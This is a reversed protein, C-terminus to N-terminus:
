KKKIPDARKRSVRRNSSLSYTMDAAKLAAIGADSSSFNVNAKKRAIKGKEKKEYVAQAKKKAAKGSEKELYSAQAKKRAAKGSAKKLYAAQAKEQAAKGSAKKLYAAQSKEQAAKGSVKKRYTSIAQKQAAKGKVGSLYAAYAKKRAAIGKPKSRYRKLTAKGKPSDRYKSDYQARKSQSEVVPDTDSDTNSNSSSSVECSTNDHVETRNTNSSERNNEDSEPIIEEGGTSSAAPDSKSINAEAAVPNKSTGKRIRGLLPGKRRRPFKGGGSIGPSFLVKGSQDCVLTIRFEDCRQLLVLKWDSSMCIDFIQLAVSETLRVGYLMRKMASSNFLMPIPILKEALRWNFWANPCPLCSCYPIDCKCERCNCPIYLSNFSTGLLRNSSLVQDIVDGIDLNLESDFNNSTSEILHDASHEDASGSTTTVDFADNSNTDTSTYNSKLAGTFEESSPAALAYNYGRNEIYGCPAALEKCSHSATADRANFGSKERYGCPAALEKCSHSATADKANFGSKENNLGHLAAMDKLSHSASQLQGSDCVNQHNLARTAGLRGESLQTALDSQETEQDFLGYPAAVDKLSRSASLVQGSPSSLARRHHHPTPLEWRSVKRLVHSFVAM